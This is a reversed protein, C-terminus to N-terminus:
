RAVGGKGFTTAFKRVLARISVPQGNWTIPNKKDAAADSFIMHNNITSIMNSWSNWLKRKGDVTLQAYLNAQGMDMM